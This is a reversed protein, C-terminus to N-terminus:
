GNVEVQAKKHELAKLVEKSLDDLQDLRVGEPLLMGDKAFIDIQTRPIKATSLMNRYKYYCYDHFGPVRYTKNGKGAILFVVGRKKLDNIFDSFIQAEIISEEIQTETFIRLDYLKRFYKHEWTEDSENDGYFAIEEYDRRYKESKTYKYWRSWVKYQLNILTNYIRTYMIKYDKKSYDREKDFLDLIKEVTILKGEDDIKLATKSVEMMFETFEKSM